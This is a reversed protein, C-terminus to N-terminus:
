TVTKASQQSIFSRYGKELYVSVQRGVLSLTGLSPPYELGLGWPKPHLNSLSILKFFEDIALPLYPKM